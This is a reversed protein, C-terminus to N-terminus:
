GRPFVEPWRFAQGARVSSILAEVDTRLRLLDYGRDDTVKRLAILGEALREIAARRQGRELHHAGVALQLFLCAFDVEDRVGEFFLEEFLESADYYDHARLAAIGAHFRPDDGIDM